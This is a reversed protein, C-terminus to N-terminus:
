GDGGRPPEGGPDDAGRGREAGTQGPREDDGAPASFWRVPVFGLPAPPEVLGSVKHLVREPDEALAVEVDVRRLNEVPTASVVIHLQWMQSAFELEEDSEDIEPWVSGVSIQTIKNSAIWSALTKQEVYFSAAAYRNLQTNVAMMGLAVIILAVMAELLTFGRARPEVHTKTAM